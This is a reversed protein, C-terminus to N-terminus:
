ASKSFVQNALIFFHLSVSVKAAEQLEVLLRTPIERKKKSTIGLRIAANNESEIAELEGLIQAVPRTKDVFILSELERFERQLEENDSDDKVVDPELLPTALPLVINALSPKPSGLRPPMPVPLDAKADDKTPKKKAAGRKAVAAAAAAVKGKKTPTGQRAASNKSNPEDMSIEVSLALVCVFIMVKKRSIVALKAM